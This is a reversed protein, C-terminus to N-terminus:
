TRLSPPLLASDSVSAMDGIKGGMATFLVLPNLYEAFRAVKGDRITFRALYENRYTAGSRLLMASKYEALLENPDSGLTDVQIDHLNEPGDIMVESAQRLVEIYNAKGVTRGEFGEMHFPVEFVVDETSLIAIADLDWINVAGLYAQVLRINAARLEESM